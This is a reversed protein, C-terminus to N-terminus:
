PVRTFVCSQSIAFPTCKRALDSTGYNNLVVSRARMSFKSSEFVERLKGINVANGKKQHIFPVSVPRAYSGTDGDSIM